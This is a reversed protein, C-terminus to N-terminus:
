TVIVIELYYENVTCICIGFLAQPIKLFIRDNFDEM